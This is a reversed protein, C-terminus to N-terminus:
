DTTAEGVEYGFEAAAETIWRWFSAAYSTDVALDYSPMTSVQWINCPILAISTRAADGPAFASPHLDLMCGKALLDRVAIGSARLIAKGGSLDMVAAFQPLAAELAALRREAEIGSAMALWQGPATGILAVGDDAVYKPGAPLALGTAAEVASALGSTQGKRAIIQLLTFGIREQLLIPKVWQGVRGYRGPQALGAFGSVPLLSLDTM